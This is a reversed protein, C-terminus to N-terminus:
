QDMSFVHLPYFEQFRLLTWSWDLFLISDAVEGDQCHVLYHVPWHLDVGKLHLAAEGVSDEVVLQFVLRNVRKKSDAPALESFTRVRTMWNRDTQSELESSTEGFKVTSTRDACNEAQQNSNQLTDFVKLFTPGTPAPLHSLDIKKPSEQLHRRKVTARSAWGGVLM